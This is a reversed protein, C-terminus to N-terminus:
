AGYALHIKVKTDAINLKLKGLKLGVKLAEKFEETVPCFAVQSYVDLELKLVSHM